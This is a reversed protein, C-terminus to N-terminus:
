FVIGSDPEGPTVRMVIKLGAHLGRGVCTFSDKLTHQFYAPDNINSNNHIM